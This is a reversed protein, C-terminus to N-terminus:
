FYMSAMASAVDCTCLNSALYHNLSRDRKISQLIYDEVMMFVKLFIIAPMHMAMSRAPMKYLMKMKGNVLEVESMMALTM